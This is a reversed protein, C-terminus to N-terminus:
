RNSTTIELGALYGRAVRPLEARERMDLRPARLDFMVAAKSFAKSELRLLMLALQAEFQDLEGEDLLNDLHRCVALFANMRGKVSMTGIEPIAQKVKDAADRATNFQDASIDIPDIKNKLAVILQDITGIREARNQFGKVIRVTIYGLIAVLAGAFIKYIAIEGINVRRYPQTVLIFIVLNFLGVCSGLVLAQEIKKSRWGLPLAIWIIPDAMTGLVTALFGFIERM